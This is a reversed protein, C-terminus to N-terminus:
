AVAKQSSVGVIIACLHMVTPVFPVLNLGAVLDFVLAIIPFVVLWTKAVYTGRAWALVCLILLMTLHLWFAPSFGIGAAQGSANLAVSNSGIYPLLYTPVMFLLYLVVYTPANAILKILSSMGIEGGQKSIETTPLEPTLKEQARVSHQVPEREPKAIKELRQDVVPRDSPMAQPQLSRIEEHLADMLNVHYFIATMLAVIVAFAFLSRTLPSVLIIEIPLLENASTWVREFQERMSSSKAADLVPRAIVHDIIKFLIGFVSCVAFILAVM